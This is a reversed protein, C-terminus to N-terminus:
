KHLKQLLERVSILMQRRAEEDITTVSAFFRHALVKMGVFEFIGNDTTQQMSEYMGSQEYQEHSNGHTSLLLASKGKLLKEIGDAGYRYAFGYSFVRDIYGKMIAPMSAWWIPYVMIMHDAWAVHGQEEEIDSPLKHQGFLEFDKASLVPNFEMEYLNRVLAAHGQDELEAQVIEMIAHNFSNPNPHAYIILHRM